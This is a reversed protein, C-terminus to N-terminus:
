EDGDDGDLMGDAEAAAECADCADCMGIDIDMDSELLDGCLVCFFNLGNEDAM